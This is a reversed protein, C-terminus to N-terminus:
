VKYIKNEYKGWYFWDWIISNESNDKMNSYNKNVYLITDINDINKNNYLNILKSIDNIIILKNNNNNYNTYINDTFEFGLYKQENKNKLIINSYFQQYTSQKFKFNCVSNNHKNYIYNYLINNNILNFKYLNHIFLHNYKKYYKDDLQVIKFM